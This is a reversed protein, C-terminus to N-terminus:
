IQIFAETDPGADLLIETCVQLRAPLLLFEGCHATGGGCRALCASMYRRADCWWLRLWVPQRHMAEVKCLCRICRIEGPGSLKDCHLKTAVLYPVQQKTQGDISMALQSVSGYRRSDPCLLMDPFCVKFVNEREVLGFGAVTAQAASASQM